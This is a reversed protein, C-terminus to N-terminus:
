ITTTFSAVAAMSLSITLVIAYIFFVFLTAFTTKFWGRRFAGKMAILYYIPVGIFFAFAMIRSPLFASTWLGVTLVLFAMAHTNLSVLLHDYILADRGRIFLASLLAMLPILIIMLRPIWDNLASNFSTPNEAISIANDVIARLTVDRNMLHVEADSDDTLRSRLAEREEDTYPTVDVRQLLGGQIQKLSISGDDNIEVDPRLTVLHTDTAWLTAFFLATIVLFFRVPPSYPSRRGDGYSRVHRGPRLTVSSLTRFVRGDVTFLDAIGEWGLKLISRRCDDNKQGCQYCYPGVVETGCAYCATPLPRGKRAKTSTVEQTVADAEIIDFESM